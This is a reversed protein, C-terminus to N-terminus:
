KEVVIRLVWNQTVELFAGLSSSSIYSNGYSPESGVALPFQGPEPTISYGAWYDTSEEILVPTEFSITKWNLSTIETSRTNKSVLADPNTIGPRAEYVLPTYSIPTNPDPNFIKIAVIKWGSYDKLKDSDFVVCCEVFDIEDAFNIEYGTIEVAYESSDYYLEAERACGGAYLCCAAGLILLLVNHKM